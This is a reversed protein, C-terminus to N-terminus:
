LLLNSALVIIPLSIITREMFIVFLNGVNLGVKANIALIGVETMFIIQVLSLTGIIFRTKLSTIGIGLLAPIFMDIFGSITAPGAAFAEEVGMLNLYWGMPYALYDFIPTYETIILGITGWAMVIPLTTVYINMLLKVGSVLIKKLSFTQASESALKVAWPGPKQGEPVLPASRKGTEPNYEDKFWRLPPIRPTIIALVIGSVVITLYMHPFYKEYGLTAAVVLCFPINIVSFATIVVAAERKTYLGKAYQSSTLIVAANSAALWSTILDIASRGPLTFLPKTLPQLFIGVFEMLGFDTLFPIFFAMAFVVAVLPPMIGMMTQGTAESRIFEPGINFVCMTLIIAGIIRSIWYLPSTVFLNKLTESNMIFSPKLFTAWLTMLTSAVVIIWAIWIIANGLIAQIWDSFIGTVITISGDKPIPVLFM